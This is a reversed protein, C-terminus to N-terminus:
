AILIPMFNIFDCSVLQFNINEYNGILAYNQADSHLHGYICNKVEYKNFIELFGLDPKKNKSIPPFHMFVFDTKYGNDKAFKLSSELRQLERNYIKSDEDGFSDGNPCLWGRTGCIAINNYFNANNNLFSISNFNNQKLFENLKKATTWFYDHNGKLIIKEGNLKNIFDFDLVCDDLYTGWSIDGVIVVVDNQSVTKQWNNLIKDTYNEWKNGFVDMPKNSSFSLHLDSIAFLSM